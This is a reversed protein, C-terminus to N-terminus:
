LKINEIVLKRYVIALLITIGFCLVFFVIVLVFLMFMLQHYDAFM